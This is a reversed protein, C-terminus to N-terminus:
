EVWKGNELHELVGCPEGDINYSQALEEACYDSHLTEIRNSKGDTYLVLACFKFTNGSLVKGVLSKIEEANYPRLRAPSLSDLSISTNPANDDTGMLVDIYPEVQTIKGYGNYYLRDPRGNIWVWEGVKCWDPLKAPREILSNQWDSTDFYGMGGYYWNKDTNWKEFNNENKVIIPKEAFFLLSGHPTVAAYMAWKPCDPRDFVEVTLKPLQNCDTVTQEKHLDLVTEKVLQAAIEAKERTQFCNGKERRVEDLISNEWEKENVVFVSDVYYFTEKFKPMWKM